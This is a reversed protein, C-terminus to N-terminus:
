IGLDKEFPLLETFSFVPCFKDGPGFSALGHRRLKEEGDKYLTSMGPWPSNDSAEFGMDAFLSTGEASVMKFKWGRATAAAKQVSVRDPTVVVFAAVRELYPLLGVFGDAWMTCYTCSVGMNHVLILQDKDGFLSSLQVTDENWDKLEYNAILEGRVVRQRLQDLKMQRDIIEQELTFIEKNSLPLDDLEREWVLSFVLLSRV